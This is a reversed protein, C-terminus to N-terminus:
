LKFVIKCKSLRQFAKFNKTTAFGKSNKRRATFGKNSIKGRSVRQIIEERFGKSIKAARRSVAKRELIEDVYLGTDLITHAYGMGAKYVAKDSAGVCGNEREKPIAAAM